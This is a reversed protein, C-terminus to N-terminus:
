SKSAKLEQEIVSVFYEFETSRCVFGVELGGEEDGSETLSMCKFPHVMEVKNPRGFGFDTEYVTFNPSGTVLLTSGLVFMKKFSARWNEADKFPESRMDTLAKEIAKVANVFGSEGKLDKRKLMAYCLTLCNGFYTKPVPYELRDRCDAAFRFYEEKEKEEEDNRCRTRVSCAWVFACTVVFKSVYQPVNFEESEKWQDLVWRKLREIDDRRFVITAKVFDEDADGGSSKYTQGILKEKWTSREEFYDRLFIAELGNPDKLVGRAFCPPSKEVLTLDVGGSRCISSWCKMFHSCCKGDMVHCYTIAICLGHNPFVTVQLAVLPFTFTDDDHVNTFTLTPVLHDLDKLSKPHNSSLLQFDAQSEIITFTVSDHDTCRIFPKHPPPPCLLNGALPFFHQLTLSLSHKLTPLTTECFHQTSHSFHYFFQRKVYIPGALPLDLFSLPLSSTTASSASAVQSKEVLKHARRVEM